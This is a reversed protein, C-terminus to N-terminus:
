RDQQDLTESFFVTCTQNSENSCRGPIDDFPFRDHIMNLYYVKNAEIVCVTPNTESQNTTVRLQSFGMPSVQVVCTATSTFDGPCESISVTVIHSANLSSPSPVFGLIRYFNEQPTSFGSIEASAGIHFTARANTDNSTGFPHGENLETYSTRLTTRNLLPPREIDDCTPATSADNGADDPGADRAAADRAAADRAAADRAAADSAADESVVFVDAGADDGGLTMDDGCGISLTLAALIGLNARNRTSRPNQM